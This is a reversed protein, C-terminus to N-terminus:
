SIDRQCPGDYCSAQLGSSSSGTELSFDFYHWPCILALKGNGLDEIDGQELPGGTSCYIM